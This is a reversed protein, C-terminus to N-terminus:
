LCRTPLTDAAPTDAAPMDAAAASAVRWEGLEIEGRLEGPRWDVRGRFFAFDSKSARGSRVLEAASHLDGGYFLPTNLIPVCDRM